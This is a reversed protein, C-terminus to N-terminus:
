VAFHKRVRSRLADESMPGTFRELVRGRRDVFLTTPMGIGGLAEFGTGDPDAALRYRVGTREVLRLAAAPDDQIAVGLFEVRGRVNEYVRQFAPMEAICFLCWSAFTNVVLPRGAFSALAVTGGAGLASLRLDAVSDAGTRERPRAVVLAGGLAVVTMAVLVLAVAARPRRRVEAPREDMAEQAYAVVLTTVPRRM